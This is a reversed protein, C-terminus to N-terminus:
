RSAGEARNRAIPQAAGANRDAEDSYPPRSPPTDCHRGCVKCSARVRKRGRRDELWSLVHGASPHEPCPRLPRPPPAAPAELGRRNLEGAVAARLGSSLKWFRLLWDLYSAPVEQLPIGQYKGFPMTPQGSGAQQATNQNV